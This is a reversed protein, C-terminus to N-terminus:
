QKTRAEAVLLAIVTKSDVRQTTEMLERVEELEYLGVRVFEDEDPHSEGKCLDTALYLHMLEDSFGISTATTTLHEWTDAEYGTEESLERKACDLPKEGPDLKGAPIELSVLDVAVRYQEVLLLRGEDDIAIIGVAGPHRIVDRHAEKGNPLTVTVDEATLFSGRWVERSDIITESIDQTDPNAM